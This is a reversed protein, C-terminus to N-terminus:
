HARRDDGREQESSDRLRLSVPDPSSRWSAILTAYYRRLGQVRAAIGLAKALYPTITATVRYDVWDRTGQMLLGTGHNKILRYADKYWPEWQDVADVWARRWMLGGDEPQGLVVDPAGQWTLYDLYVTGDTPRLSRLALGIAAIPQGGTGPISWALEHRSRPALEVEPGQVTVLANDAGYRQLYLCGTVTEKNTADAEVGAVVTQGSYLTPSALLQYGHM